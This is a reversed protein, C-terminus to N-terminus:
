GTGDHCGDQLRADDRADDGVARAQELDPYVVSAGAETGFTGKIICGTTRGPEVTTLAQVLRYVETPSLDTELGGIASLAVEEMFGEEDEAGRLRELTGLLLRQHNAVREFDSGDPLTERTRAYSLSEDADFTNRGRQVRVDGDETTFSTPSDVQVDGVAGMMTLFGEFGTVLVVDPEIGLLEDVERAVGEPGEDRLATNLRASGGSMEVYLDRPLGIAVARRTDLHVGVLQIADTLGTMVDEGAAAESGLALVWVIGDGADVAKATGITTLSITTPHVSGSPVVLAVGALLALRVAIRRLLRM